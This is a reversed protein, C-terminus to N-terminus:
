RLQPAVRTVQSTPSLGSVINFRQYGMAFCYAFVSPLYPGVSYPLGTNTTAAWLSVFHRPGALGQVCDGSIQSIPLIQARCKSSWDVKRPLYQQTGERHHSGERRAHRLGYLAKLRGRVKLTHAASCRSRSYSKKTDCIHGKPFAPLGRSGYWVMGYWVPYNSACGKVQEVLM